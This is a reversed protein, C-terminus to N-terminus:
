KAIVERSTSRLFGFGSRGAPDYWQLMVPLLTLDATLAVLITLMTLLGFYIAGVFSASLMVAFGGCLALGSYVLARGVEILAERLATVIDFGEKLKLRVRSVFHISDDDALGIAISAVMATMSDLRIGTMGMVGLTILIPMTNALMVLAGLGISGMQFCFVVFISVLAGSFGQVLSARIYEELNAFLMMLGTVEGRIDSPLQTAMYAEIERRLEVAENSTTMDVRATIRAQRYDFTVYERLDGDPADMEYLLLYQAAEEASTPLRYERQDNGHFARRLDKFYDAVSQTSSVISHSELFAELKEIERLLAPEKVGGERGTDLVIEVTVSGALREQIAETDRRIQSSEKFIRIFSSEARVQSAFGISVAVILTWAGVIWAGRRVTFGHLAELARTSLYHRRSRDPAPEPPELYSLVVPVFTVTLLFACGVGYAAFLGFIRISEIRSVALSLMGIATTLGTLFLPGFLEHYVARLAQAKREGKRCRNQYDVLVHMADAVGVALLLPPLMTSIVNVTVGALSMTGITWVVAMGVTVLPLVVGWWTRLLAALVGALFITMLGVTRLTDAESQRFFQEDFVPGGALYFSSGVEAELIRRIAGVAEVKYQFADVHHPLRAIVTTFRGDASVVNGVYLRNALARERIAPLAAADVPMEVLDGIELTDGKGTVSEINTLSFVKEVHPAVEIARTIRDIRELVDPAFVDPAELGAVVIEDSGFLKRFREHELLAPDDDLFWTKLANDFHIHPLEALALATVVAVGLLVTKRYRLCTDAWADVFRKFRRELGPRM